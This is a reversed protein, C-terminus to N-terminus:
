FPVSDDDIKEAGVEGGAGAGQNIKNTIWDPCWGDELEPVMIPAEKRAPAVATIKVYDDKGERTVIVLSLTCQVKLLKEVDYGEVVEEDTFARGRWSELDKRLNAKKNMSLTYEKHVLFRKGAYDGEKMLEALEWTILVKNPFSTKGQYTTLQKGLDHIKSCVADQFGAEPLERDFTGSDKAIIAM